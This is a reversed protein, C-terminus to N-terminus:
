CLQLQSLHLQVGREWRSDLGDFEMIMNHLVCCGIWLMDLTEASQFRCPLKLIRFRGKLRGFCCEVDKRVSELRSTWQKTCTLPCNRWPCQLELWHHYGGDCILYLGQLQQVSGDAAYAPFFRHTYRSQTRLDNVAGDYKVITKDNWSGCFGVTTSLIRGTHDCILQM